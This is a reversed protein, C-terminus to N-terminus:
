EEITIKRYISLVTGGYIRDDRRSFIECGAFSDAAVDRSSREMVFVGGPALISPHEAMMSPLTLSWGMGYPPDAFVIGFVAGDRALKPLIRRVDAHVCRAAGAPCSGALRASLLRARILDSEVAL